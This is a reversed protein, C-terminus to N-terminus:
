ASGLIRDRRPHIAGVLTVSESLVGRQNVAALLDLTLLSVSRVLFATSSKGTESRTRFLGLMRQLDLHKNVLEESRYLDCDISAKLVVLVLLSWLEM